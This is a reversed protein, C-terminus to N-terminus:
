GLYQEILAMHKTLAQQEALFCHKARQAMATAAAPDSLWQRLYPILAATDEAVWLANAAQFQALITAFNYMSPGTIIPTEVAAPELINHGGRAILSGGVLALDAVAYFCLLEGLTDILVVQQATLTPVQQPTLHSRKVVQFGYKKILQEISDVRNPHRPALWLRLQPYEASVTQYAHLVMEEEGEHTSAALWIKEQNLGARWQQAQTWVDAKVDLNFKLNGAVHVRQPLASLQRFREADAEAQAAIASFGQFIPKFFAAFRRYARLSKESLRANVLLLPIRRKSLALVVNPWVETEMMLALAPKVRHVFRESFFVVDYPLYCHQVRDKFLRQTCASGTVTSNTILLEYSDGYRTLLAEILPKAAITEGVSVVHLWIVPKHFTPLRWAIRESWRQRYAKDQRGRWWLKVFALPWLILTLVRYLFLM